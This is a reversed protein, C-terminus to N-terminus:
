CKKNWIRQARTNSPYEGSVLCITLINQKTLVCIKDETTISRIATACVTGYTVGFHSNQVVVFSHLCGFHLACLERKRTIQLEINTSKKMYKLIVIQTIVPNRGFLGSRFFWPYAHFPDDYLWSIVDVFKHASKIPYVAVYWLWYDM